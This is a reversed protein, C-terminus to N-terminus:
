FYALASAFLSLCCARLFVAFLFRTLELLSDLELLELLLDTMERSLLAEEEESETQIILFRCKKNFGGGDEFSANYISGFNSSLM